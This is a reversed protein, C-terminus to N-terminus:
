FIVIIFFFDGDGRAKQNRQTWTPLHHIGKGQSSQTPCDSLFPDQVPDEAAGIDTTEAGWPTDLWGKPCYNNTGLIPSPWSESVVWQDQQNVRGGPSPTVAPSQAGEKICSTTRLDHRANRVRDM